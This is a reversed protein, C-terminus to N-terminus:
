AEALWETEPRPTTEGESQGTPLPHGYSPQPTEMTVGGSAYLALHPDLTPKGLCKGLGDIGARRSVRGHLWGTPALAAGLVWAMSANGSAENQQNPGSSATSGVGVLNFALVITFSVPKTEDRNTNALIM